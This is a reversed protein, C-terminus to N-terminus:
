LGNRCFTCHEGNLHTHKKEAYGLHDEHKHKRLTVTQPFTKDCFECPIQIGEMHIQVHDMMHSLKCRKGCVKCCWGGTEGTKKSRKPGKQMFMLLKHKLEAIYSEETVEVIDFDTDSQNITTHEEMNEEAYKIPLDNKLRGKHIMSGKLPTTKTKDKNLEKNSSLDYELHEKTKPSDNNDEHLNNREFSEHVINREKLYSQEKMTSSKIIDQAEELKSFEETDSLGELNKMPSEALGQVQFEEALDLFNQINDQHVEVQGQYIFDLLSALLGAEVGQMYVMAQPQQGLRTVLSRLVPSCSALIAKHAAFLSSDGCALTIDSFEGSALLHTRTKSVNTQFDNWKIKLNDSEKM